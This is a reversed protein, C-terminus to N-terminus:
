YDISSISLLGQLSEVVKQHIRQNKRRPFHNVRTGASAIFMTKKMYLGMVIQIHVSLPSSTAALLLLHLGIIGDMAEASLKATCSTPPVLMLLELLTFQDLIHLSVLLARLGKERSQLLFVSLELLLQARSDLVATVTAAQQHLLENGLYPLM